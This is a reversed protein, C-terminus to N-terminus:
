LHLTWCIFLVASPHHWVQNDDSAVMTELRTNLVTESDRVAAPELVFEERTCNHVTVREGFALIRPSDGVVGPTKDPVCAIDPRSMVSATSSRIELSTTQLGPEKVAEVEKESAYQAADEHESIKGAQVDKGEGSETSRRMACAMPGIGAGMSAVPMLDALSPGAIKPKEAAGTEPVADPTGDTTVRQTAPNAFKVDSVAAADSHELPLSGDNRFVFPQGAEVVPYHCLLKHATLGFCTQVDAVTVEDGTSARRLIFAFIKCATQVSLRLSADHETLWLAVNIFVAPAPLSCRPYLHSLLTGDRISTFIADAEMGKFPLKNCFLLLFSRGLAVADIARTPLYRTAGPRIQEPAMFSPTGNTEDCRLSRQYPGDCRAALGADIIVLESGISVDNLSDVRHRLVMNSPKLDCHAYGADHFACTGRCAQMAIASAPALDLPMSSFNADLWATSNGLSEM